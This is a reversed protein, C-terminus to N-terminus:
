SFYFIEWPLKQNVVAAMENPSLFEVQKRNGSSGKFYSERVKSILKRPSAFDVFIGSSQATRESTRVERQFYYWSLNESNKKLGALNAEKWPQHMLILITSVVRCM